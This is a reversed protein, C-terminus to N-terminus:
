KNFIEDVYRQAISKKHFERPPSRLLSVREFTTPLEGYHDWLVDSTKEASVTEGAVGEYETLCQNILRDFDPGVSKEFM